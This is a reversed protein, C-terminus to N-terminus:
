GFAVGCRGNEKVRYLADDANKFLTELSIGERGFAVGVSISIAPLERDDAQLENNVDMIKSEILPKMSPDAHVMIVAMEDGGFRCIYDRNRFSSHLIESVEKLIRDGIEHGYTDNIQKFEDLDVLLLASTEIDINELLFDYGRRNYLGTLEDHTAEFNLKEFSKINTNHMLNYTKALFRVEYAGKLPLNKEKRILKVSDKLPFVVLKLVIAVLVFMFISLVITLLHETFVQTKLKDSIAEQEKSLEESIDSLCENMHSSIAEKAEHYEKGFAADIAAEKKESSTKAKDSASLKVARIEEPYASVDEHNAEVTLRAAYYELSQLAVSEDMAAKLNTVSPLGERNKELENIAKERRKTVNVEEFYEELYAKEGTLVFSRIKDTLYDSAIQLEYADSRYKGLQVTIEATEDNIRSTMTMSYFLIGATIISLVLM